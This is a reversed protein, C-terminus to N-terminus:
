GGRAEIAEAMALAQVTEAVDHVRIMAVGSRAARLAITLSGGLRDAATEASPAVARMFGKRSAGLLVPFGSAVFRNLHALLDLNHAATKGFGIGPDLWIKDRPLGGAMAAQAREVLYAAVEGVVDDYRPAVQMTVPEGSMHMLVVACGLEVCTQKAGPERLAGVDNWMTAGAAVAARAVSPKRTDVSINAFGTARVAEVVPLVRELEAGESVPQAGPRTSEGGVDIWDAGEAILRLAHAAPDYAGGDSFSDPTANVIGMVLM